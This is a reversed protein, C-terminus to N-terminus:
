IRNEYLYSPLQGKNERCMGCMCTFTVCRPDIPYRPRCEAFWTGKKMCWRKTYLPNCRFNRPYKILQHICKFYYKQTDTM